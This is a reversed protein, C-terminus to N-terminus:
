KSTIKAVALKTKGFLRDTKGVMYMDQGIVSGHRPMATPVESNSFFLKRQYKGSVEDLSV